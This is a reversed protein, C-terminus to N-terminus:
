FIAKVDSWYRSIDNGFAFVMLGVLLVLGVYSAVLRIQLPLPRRLVVEILIFAIHGGDLVPIPLLNLLGLLVSLFAMMKVFYSWGMQATKGAINAMMLPGGIAETAAVKGEFIRVFGMINMTVAMWTDLFTMRTANAIRDPRPVFTGGLLNPLYSVGLGLKRTTQKFENSETIVSPTFQVDKIATGQRWRITLPQSNSTLITRSFEEWSRIVKGDMSLIKDGPLMGLKKAPQGEAVDFIFLDIPEIGSYASAVPLVGEPAQAAPQPVLYTDLLAPARLAVAGAKLEAARVAALPLLHPGNAQVVNDMNEWGEVLIGGLSLVKDWSQLGARTAPSEPVVGILNGQREHRIGLDWRKGMLELGTEDLENDPTIDFHFVNGQRDVTVQVPKGGSEQIGDDVDEWTRSKHKGISVIRDQPVIGASSAPSGPIVRGVVPAPARTQTLHYVFYIPFALLISFMPGGLIILFRKWPAQSPFARPKDEEPIEETPDEGLMRVFGGAPVWAVRYETEGWHFCLKFRGISIPTGFGLSFTLVKVGFLKAFLFHGCEHAFILVGILVIFWFFTAM